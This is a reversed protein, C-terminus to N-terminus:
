RAVPPRDHAAHPEINGVLEFLEHLDTMRDAFSSCDGSSRLETLLEKQAPLGALLVHMPYKVLQYGWTGIQDLGVQPGYGEAACSFLLYRNRFAESVAEAEDDSRLAEVFLMDAGAAFYARGRELTAELGEMSLADTKVIIMFDPNRKAEIATAIRLEMEEKSIVVKGSILGCKKPLEQDELHIAAVGAREFEEVCRRVNLHSGFGSDADAVIPISVARAIDHANQVMEQLTVLGYDQFGRSAATWAGSMYAAEFGTSAILRASIADGCGPAMVPSACDLLERLATGASSVPGNTV